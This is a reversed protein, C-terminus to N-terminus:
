KGAIRTRAAIEARPRVRVPLILNMQVAGNTFYLSLATHRRSVRVDFMSRGVNFMSYHHRKAGWNLKIKKSNQTCEVRRSREPGHAQQVTTKISTVFINILEETEEDKGM